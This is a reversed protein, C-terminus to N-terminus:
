ELYHFTSTLPLILIMFIYIINLNKFSNNIISPQLTTNAFVKGCLNSVKVFLVSLVKSLSNILKKM